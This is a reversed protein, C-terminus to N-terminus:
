SNLVSDRITELLSKNTKAKGDKLRRNLEAKLEKIRTNKKEIITGDDNEITTKGKDRIQAANAMFYNVVSRGSDQGYNDDLSDMGSMASLYPAAGFYIQQKQRGLERRIENAIAGITKEQDTLPKPKDPAGIDSPDDGGGARASVNRHGHVKESGHGPHKELIEDYEVFGKRPADRISIM